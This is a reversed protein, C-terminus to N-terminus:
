YGRKLDVRNLLPKGELFRRLNERVLQGLRLLEKQAGLGALHPSIIVNDLRWFPSDPPLPEQVFVDLAAGRIRREKLATLLAEEDVVEGRAVNILVCSPGLLSLFRADVLHRTQPTLPTSIVVYDAAKLYEGAESAPVVPITGAGSRGTRTVGTVRMGLASAKEGIAQGIDGFGYVVLHRDEVTGLQAVMESANWRAAQRDREMLVIGRAFAFIFAMVHEAITPTYVSRASTLYINDPVGVSSYVDVGVGTSQIWSVGSGALARAVAPSYRNGPLILVDCERRALIQLLSPEDACYRWDVRPDSWGETFFAMVPPTRFMAVVVRVPGNMTSANM